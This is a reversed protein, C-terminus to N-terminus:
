FSTLLATYKPMYTAWIYLHLLQVNVCMTLELSDKHMSLLYHTITTLLASVLTLGLEAEQYSHSSQLSGNQTYLGVHIILPYCCHRSRSTITITLNTFIPFGSLVINWKINALGEGWTSHPFFLLYVQDHTVIVSSCKHVKFGKM